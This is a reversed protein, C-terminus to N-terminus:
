RAGQLTVAPPKVETGVGAPVNRVQIDASRPRATGDEAHVSVVATVEGSFSEIELLPGHLVIDVTAPDTAFREEVAESVGEGAVIRVPVDEITRTGMEPALIVEVEIPVRDAIEILSRPETRPPELPLVETFSDTRGDLRLERTHVRNTERVRTEAGRITVQSPKPLIRQVEYGRAPEGQTAVEVPVTKQVRPEFAVNITPPNISLLTLDEPLVVEDEPFTFPGDQVNTLDVLIRDIEREDFRKIRRWPGRISLRVQDVPQSVLVRNEPLQYSVDVNVGIIADRDTNVLFFLSLALVLSVLKLLPNRTFMQRLGQRVDDWSAKREEKSPPSLRPWVGSRRQRKARREDLWSM